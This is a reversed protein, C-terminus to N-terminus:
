FTHIGYLRALAQRDQQYEDALILFILNTTDDHPNYYCSFPTDEPIQEEKFVIALKDHQTWDGRLTLSLRRSIIEEM